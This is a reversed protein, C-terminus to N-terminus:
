LRAFVRAIVGDCHEGGFEFLDREALDIEQALSERLLSRARFHRSRVTDEPIGLIQATDQVSLEEVSRMVFVLRFPEPLEDLKHELLDRIQARGTAQDPRESDQAAVTDVDPRNTSSVMPIVNQRRHQRRLRGSCENLVLRSLWTSLAADGRFQRLSQYASLYADQLVDDAEAPDKLVARALRYLRRNYRRMLREFAVHDGGAIRRAMSLDDEETPLLPAIDTTM